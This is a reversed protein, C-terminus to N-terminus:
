DTEGPDQTDIAIDLQILEGKKNKYFVERKEKALIEIIKDQEIIEVVGCTNDCEQVWKRVACIRWDMEKAITAISDSATLVRSWVFVRSYDGFRLEAKGAFWDGLGGGTENTTGTLKRSVLHDIIEGDIELIIKGHENRKEIKM